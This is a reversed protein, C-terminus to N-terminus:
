PVISPQYCVVGNESRVSSLFLHRGCAANAERDDDALVSSCLANPRPKYQVWTMAKVGLKTDVLDGDGHLM